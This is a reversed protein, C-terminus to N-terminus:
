LIRGLIGDLCGGENGGKWRIVAWPRVVAWEEPVIVEACTDGTM